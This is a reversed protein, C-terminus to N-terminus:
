EREFKTVNEGELTKRYQRWGQFNGWWSWRDQPATAQAQHEAPSAHIPQSGLLRDYLALDEELLAPRGSHRTYSVRACRAVSVKIQTELPHELMEKARVYPLHWEGPKLNVPCSQERAEWMQRALEKIEPQAASHYRLAFFNDWETATCVVSMHMWPELLRNAVQKHLGQKLLQHVHTITDELAYQWFSQCNKKQNDDLEEYAQMGKQNKGWHIPVAPDDLINGIMISVPIARSSSANRSFMRHTMFEAHIFRPYYLQMTTIRSIGCQSDAIIDVKITM